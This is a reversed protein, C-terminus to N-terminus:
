MSMDAESKLSSLTQEECQIGHEERITLSIVVPDTIMAVISNGVPTSLVKASHYTPSM